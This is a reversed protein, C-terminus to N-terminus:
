EARQKPHSPGCCLIDQDIAVTHHCITITGVVVFSASFSYLSFSSSFFTAATCCTSTLGRDQKRRCFAFLLIYAARVVVAERCLHAFQSIQFDDTRDLASGGMRFSFINNNQRMLFVVPAIKSKALYLQKFAFYNWYHQQMM